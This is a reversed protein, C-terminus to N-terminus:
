PARCAAAFQLITRPLVAKSGSVGRDEFVRDAGAVALADSQLAVDQDFTSVRAYGIFSM